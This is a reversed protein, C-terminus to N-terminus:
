WATVWCGNYGAAKLQTCLSAAAERSGPPGVVLRYWLGKEGLNAEQVDPTRSSLVEGYKEQMNAFIKLADMRSKQSSLVAVYGAGTVAPAASAEKSKPALDTSEAPKAPAPASKGPAAPGTEAPQPMNTASAIRVPPQPAARPPVAAPPPPLQVLAASPPPQARPPGVNDITVGPPLAMAPPSAPAPPATTTVIVRKSRDVERDALKGIIAQERYFWVGVAILLTVCAAFSLYQRSSIGLRPRNQLVPFRAVADSVGISQLLRATKLTIAEACTEIEYHPVSTETLDRSLALIVNSEHDDLLNSAIEDVDFQEGLLERNQRLRSSLVSARVPNVHPRQLRASSLLSLALDQLELRPLVLNPEVAIVALMYEIAYDYAGADAERRASDLMMEILAASENESTATV